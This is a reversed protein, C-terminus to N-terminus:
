ILINVNEETTTTSPGFDVTEYGAFREETDKNRVM